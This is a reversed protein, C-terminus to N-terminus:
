EGTWEDTGRDASSGLPDGSAGASLDHAGDGDNGAIEAPVPRKPARVRNKGGHKANYLADDSERLLSEKDWAHTPYTALGLSVTLRCAIEGDGDAFLHTAVAERVKEAVVFAGASDTEPLVISFEEGGYRAVVDVERVAIRLVRGLEALAIDGAIHGQTDNFGKFDDVDLMLLSLRKDYRKSRELEEDLKQQLYRYNYLGTLEDTISLRKTLKYLRSNEVAVVLESAVATLVLRDEDSLSEIQDATACFLVMTASHDFVTMCSFHDELAGYALTEASISPAAGLSGISASFLTESKEKDIVFLCCTDVGIVKAVIDLVVPGIREFDLSSHIVETIQSVAQLESIRHELQENLHDKEAVAHRAERERAHQRDVSTAVIAAIFPIAIADAATLAMHTPTVLEDFAHGVSYAVAIAVAVLVADRRTEVLAYTIALLVAVAYFADNINQFLYSFGVVGILDPILVQMMIRRVSGEGRRSAIYVAVTGAALVTLLFLYLTVEDSGGPYPLDLFLIAGLLVTIVIRARLYLREDTTLPAHSTEAAVLAKRDCPILLLAGTEASTTCTYRVARHRGARERESAVLV